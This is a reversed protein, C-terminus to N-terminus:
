TNHNYFKFKYIRKFRSQYAKNIYYFKDRAVRSINLYKPHKLELWLM